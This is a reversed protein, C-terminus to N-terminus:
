WMLSLGQRFYFTKFFQADKFIRLICRNFTLAYRCLMYIFLYKTVKKTKLNYPALFSIGQFFIGLSLMSCRRVVACVACYGTMRLTGVMEGTGVMSTEWHKELQEAM